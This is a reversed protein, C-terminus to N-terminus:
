AGLRMDAQELEAARNIEEGLVARVERQLRGM